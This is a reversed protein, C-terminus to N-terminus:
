YKHLRDTWRVTMNDIHVVGAFNPPYISIKKDMQGEAQAIQAIDKKHLFM